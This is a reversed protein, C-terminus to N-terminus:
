PTRSRGASRSTRPSSERPRQVRRTKRGRPADLRDGSQENESRQRPRDYPGAQRLVQPGAVFGDDVGADPRFVGLFRGRATEVPQDEAELRPLLARQEAVAGAAELVDGATFAPHVVEITLRQRFRPRHPHPGPRAPAPKQSFARSARRKWRRIRVLRPRESGMRHAGDGEAHNQQQEQTHGAVVQEAKVPDPKRSELGDGQMADAHQAPPRRATTPPPGPGEAPPTFPAMVDWAIRM